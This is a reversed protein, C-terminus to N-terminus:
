RHVECMPEIYLWNKWEQNNIIKIQDSIEHIHDCILGIRSNDNSYCFQSTIKYITAILDNRQDITNTNKILINIIEKMYIITSLPDNLKENFLFLCKKIYDYQRLNLHQYIRIM